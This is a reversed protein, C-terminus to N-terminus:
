FPACRGKRPWRTSRRSTADRTPWAASTNRGRGTSPATSSWTGSGKARLAQPEPPFGLFADVKEEALAADIRRSTCRGTSTRRPDLGVNALISALFVHQADGLAPVSITKGKLDRVARIRETVFLEFCGVHVGGLVVLPDGADLRLLLPGVFNLVLDVNGALVDHTWTNGETKYPRVDTFGEARLLGEAVYYPAVCIAPSRVWRITTIEPPPEALAPAARLGLAAGSGALAAANLFRRRSWEDQRRDDM